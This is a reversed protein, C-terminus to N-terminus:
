SDGGVDSTDEIIEWTKNDPLNDPREIQVDAINININRQGESYMSKALTQKAEPIYDITMPTPNFPEATDANFTPQYPIWDPGAGETVVTSQGHVWINAARIGAVGLGTATYQQDGYGLAEKAEQYVDSEQYYAWDIEGKTLDDYWQNAEDSHEGNWDGDVFFETGSGLADAETRDGEVTVLRRIDLGWEDPAQQWQGETHGTSSGGGYLETLFRNELYALAEAEDDTVATPDAVLRAAEMTQISTLEPDPDEDLQQGGEGWTEWYEGPSVSGTIPHIAGEIPPDGILSYLNADDEAASLGFDAADEDYWDPRTDRLESGSRHIGDDLRRNGRNTIYDEVMDIASTNHHWYDDGRRWPEGWSTNGHILEIENEVIYDVVEQILPNQLKDLASAGEAMAADILGQRLTNYAQNNTYDNDKMWDYITFSGHGAARAALIDANDFAVGAQPDTQYDGFRADLEGNQIWMRLGDQNEHGEHLYTDLLEREQVNTFWDITVNRLSELDHAGVGPIDMTNGAAVQELLYKYDAGGFGTTGQGAPMMKQDWATYNARADSDTLNEDSDTLTLTTDTDNSSTDTDLTVLNIADDQATKESAAEDRIDSLSHGSDLKNQIWDDRVENVQRLGREDFIRTINERRGRELGEMIKTAGDIHRANDGLWNRVWWSSKGTALTALYDAENFIDAQSADREARFLTHPDGDEVWEYLGRAGGHANAEWLNLEGHKDLFQQRAWVLDSVDPDGWRGDDNHNDAPANAKLWEYYEVAGFSDRGTQEKWTGWWSSLGGTNEAYRAM